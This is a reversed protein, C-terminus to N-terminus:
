TGRMALPRLASTIKLKTTIRGAGLRRSKRNQTILEFLTKLESSKLPCEALNAPYKCDWMIKQKVISLNFKVRINWDDKIVHFHPPSHDEPYMELTFGPYQFAELKAM